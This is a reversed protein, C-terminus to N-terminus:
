SDSPHNGEHEFSLKSKFFYKYLLIITLIAILALGLERFLDNNDQIVSMYSTSDYSMTIFTIANNIFHIIIAPYISGTIIVTVGLYLGIIFLMIFSVPQFHIAAFLLSTLILSSRISVYQRTKSLLMGRFFLEECIAPTLAGALLVVLIQTFNTSDLSFIDRYFKDLSEFQNALWAGMEHPLLYIAFTIISSELVIMTLWGLTLPILWVTPFNWNLRLSSKIDGSRKAIVIALLFFTGFQTLVIWHLDYSVKFDSGFSSDFLLTVAVQILAFLITLVILVGVIKMYFKALTSQPKEQNEQM